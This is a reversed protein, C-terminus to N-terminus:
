KISNLYKTIGQKLANWYNFERVHVMDFVFYGDAANICADVSNAVAADQGGKEFGTANGVDPGGACKVDGCLITKARSCFGQMTWETSGYISTTSAYAGLLIFDLHDAFGYNAYDSTAWTPYYNRTNYKPSAWNVGVEYYTSYWAGVYVGVRVTDNVSRITQKAKVIFDHITKARFALWQKFYTPQSAPLESTGPAMIDAPFNISSKGIFDLFKNKTVSSFDSMMNDYRCRDLFIGDLNYKALDSLLHLIYTQVDDNNPNLFKAGYYQSYDTLDMENTLGSSMNLTTAWSKKSSDRFLMGQSGLGYPYLDGGVFTNFAADVKLGLEHGIDIFAQLYDWTATREYYLYHGDNSWYDLKKVQDVYNTKYLVDGMSPRVDVVVDTFGADKAKTLDRKINEKSNAFEPFNACADIWIFRPKATGKNTGGGSSSGGSDTTGGGGIDSNNPLGGGGSSCSIGAAFCFWALIYFIRKM